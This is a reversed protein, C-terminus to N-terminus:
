LALGIMVVIVVPAVWMSEIRLRRARSNRLIVLAMAIIIPILTAWPSGNAGQPSM